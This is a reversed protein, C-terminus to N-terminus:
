NVFVTKAVDVVIMNDTESKSLNTSSHIWYQNNILSYTDRTNREVGFIFYNPAGTCFIDLKKNNSVAVDKQEFIPFRIDLSLDKIVQKKDVTKRDLKLASCKSIEKTSGITLFYFEPHRFSKSVFQNPLGHNSLFILFTDLEMDTFEHTDVKNKSLYDKLLSSM